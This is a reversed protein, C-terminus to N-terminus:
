RVEVECVSRIVQQRKIGLPGMRVWMGLMGESSWLHSKEGSGTSYQLRYGDFAGTPEKWSVGLTNSSLEKFRLRRPMLVAFVASCMGWFWWRHVLLSSRIVAASLAENSRLVHLTDDDTDSRWVSPVLRVARRTRVLCLVVAQILCLHSLATLNSIM